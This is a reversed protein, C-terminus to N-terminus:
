AKHTPGKSPFIVKTTEFEEWDNKANDDKSGQRRIPEDLM